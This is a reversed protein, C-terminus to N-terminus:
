FSKVFLVIAQNREFNSLGPGRATEETIEASWAVKIAATASLKLYLSPGAFLGRSSLFSEEDWRM